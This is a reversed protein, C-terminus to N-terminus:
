RGERATTAAPWKELTDAFLQRVQDVHRNLNGVTWDDTPIPDLVAVDVTGPNIVPSRRWMLEGANRIVIPILPVGAQMALHFAGKKFRQVVPTATRTGEPAITVSTGAKIRAVVTDLTARARANNGRDIFAPDILAGLLLMRPDWQAEKKAVGTFDTRVLAGIILVDLSSQHNIVFVAPRTKTLNHEGIVNLKVGALALALDCGLGIGANTGARRNRRALGTLVGAGLGVNMGALAAATGLYSRVGASVPERLALVPWGHQQAAAALVPHPNVARPKGVSALFAIDEQGNAYGYSQKLDVQSVRAFARVAKAKRDGWLMGTSSRGTLIGDEAELETCLIHEIGLDRAVPEIQMRTASSAVAVTHGQRLHARVLDRAQPRITGAIKQLFLREGLEALEDESRGALAAMSTQGLAQPDGGLVAGDIASVLTRALEAPGIQGRRIRDAYFTGATYGQVITGDLDFFAGIRPGAPGQGVAEVVAQVGPSM